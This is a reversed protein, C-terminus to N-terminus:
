SKVKDGAAIFLPAFNLMQNTNGYTTDAIRGIAL